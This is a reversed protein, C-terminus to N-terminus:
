WMDEPLAEVGVTSPENSTRGCSGPVFECPM